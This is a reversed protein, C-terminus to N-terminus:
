IKVYRDADIAIAIVAIQHSDLFETLGVADDLLTDFPQAIIRSRHYGIVM